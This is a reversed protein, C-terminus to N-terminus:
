WVCTRRESARVHSLAPQFEVAVSVFQERQRAPAGNAWDVRQSRKWRPATTTAVVTRRHSRLTLARGMRLKSM